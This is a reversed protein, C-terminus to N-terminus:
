QHVSVSEPRKWYSHLWSWHALLIMGSLLPSWLLFAKGLLTFGVFVAVIGLLFGNNEHFLVFDIRGFFPFVVVFFRGAWLGTIAVGVSALPLASASLPNSIVLGYIAYYSALGALLALCPHLRNWLLGFLTGTMWSFVIVAYTIYTSTVHLLLLFFYDFQLLALHFGCLFAFLVLSSM